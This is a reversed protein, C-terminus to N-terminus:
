FLHSTGFQAGTKLRADEGDAQGRAPAEAVGGGGGGGGKKKKRAEGGGDGGRGGGERNTEQFQQEQNAGKGAGDRPRWPEEWGEGERRGM